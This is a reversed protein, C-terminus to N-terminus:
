PMRTPATLRRMRLHSPLPPPRHPGVPLATPSQIALAISDQDEPEGALREAADAQEQMRQQEEMQMRWALELTQRTEDDLDQDDFNPRQLAFQQQMAREEEQQMELALRLSADDENEADAEEPTTDVETDDQRSVSEM